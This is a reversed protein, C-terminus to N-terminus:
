KITRFITEKITQPTKYDGEDLTLSNLNRLVSIKKTASQLQVLYICYPETLNKANFLLEHDHVADVLNVQNEDNKDELDDQEHPIVFVIKHAATDVM